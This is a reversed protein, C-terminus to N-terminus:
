RFLLVGSIILPIVIVLIGIGIYLKKKNKM